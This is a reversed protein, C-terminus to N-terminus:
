GYPAQYIIETSPVEESCPLYDQWTDVKQVLLGPVPSVDTGWRVQRANYPRCEGKVYPCPSKALIKGMKICIKSCHPNCIAASFTCIEFTPVNRPVM